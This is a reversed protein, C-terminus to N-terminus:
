GFKSNLYAKLPIFVCDFAVDGLDVGGMVVGRLDESDMVWALM